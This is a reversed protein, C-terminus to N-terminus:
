AAGDAALIGRLAEGVDAAGGAQVRTKLADLPNTSLGAVGQAVAGLLLVEGPELRAEADGTAGRKRQLAQAKLTEYVLLNISFFPM